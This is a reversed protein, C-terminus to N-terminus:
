KIKLLQKALALKQDKTMTEVMKNLNKKTPNKEVRTKAKGGTTKTKKTQQQVKTPKTRRNARIKLFLETLDKSNMRSISPGLDHITAM